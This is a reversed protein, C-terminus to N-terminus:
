SHIWKNFVPINKIKNKKRAHINEMTECLKFKILFAANNFSFNEEPCLCNCINESDINIFHYIEILIQM